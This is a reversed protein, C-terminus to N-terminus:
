RAPISRLDVISKSGEAVHLRRGRGEDVRLVEPNLWAGPEIAEWSLIEYDGPALGRLEFHGSADTRGSKFLDVRERGTEPVAVVVANFAPQRRDNMVTGTVGGGRTGIVVDLRDRPPPGELHLGSRLVDRTGLQISEIYSDGRTAVTIVYDGPPVGNLTFVGDPSSVNSGSSSARPRGTQPDIQVLPRASPDRLGNV